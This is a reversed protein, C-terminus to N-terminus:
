ETSLPTNGRGGCEPHRDYDAPHWPGIEEGSMILRLGELTLVDVKIDALPPLHGHTAAAQTALWRQADAYSMIFAGYQKVLEQQMRVSDERSLDPFYAREIASVIWMQKTVDGSNVMLTLTVKTPYGSKSLFVGELPRERNCVVPFVM